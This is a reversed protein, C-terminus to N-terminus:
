QMDASRTHGIILRDIVSRDTIEQWALDCFVREEVEVHLGLLVLHVGLHFSKGEGETM